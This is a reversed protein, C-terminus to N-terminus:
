VNSSPTWSVSSVYESIKLSNDIDIINILVEESNNMAEIMSELFDKHKGNETLTMVIVENDKDPYLGMEAIPTFYLNLTTLSMPHAGRWHEVPFFLALNNGAIDGFYFFRKM